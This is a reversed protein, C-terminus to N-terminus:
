RRRLANSSFVFPRGMSPSPGPNEILLESFGSLAGATNLIDHFFIRELIRRRKEHSIDIVSFLTYERGGIHFPKANVQLDLANGNQQLIRCEGTAGEGEQASLIANVAGCTKCFDTTGCGEERESAHMCTLAEGPRSGCLSRRDKTGLLALVADNAYVIQRDGNLLMSGESIADLLRTILPQSRVFDYDGLVVSKPKREPSAFQTTEPTINITNDASHKV